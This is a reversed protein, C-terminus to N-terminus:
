KQYNKYRITSAKVFKRFNRSNKEFKKEHMNIMLKILITKKIVHENESSLPNENLIMLDYLNTKLKTNMEYKDILKQSIYNNSAKSDIMVITQRENIRVYKKLNRAYNISNKTFVIHRKKLSINKIM